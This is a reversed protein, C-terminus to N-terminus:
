LNLWANVLVQWQIRSGGAAAGTAVITNRIADVISTNKTNPIENRGYVGASITLNRKVVKFTSTADPEFFHAVSSENNVPSSVPRVRMAFAQEDNVTDTGINEVIVWDYGEGTQTGPAPIDIRIYDKKQAGRQM